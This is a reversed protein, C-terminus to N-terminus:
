SKKQRWKFNPKIRTFNIRIQFIGITRDFQFDLNYGILFKNIYFLLFTFFLVYELISIHQAHGALEDAFQNTTLYSTIRITNRLLIGCWAPEINDFLKNRLASILVVGLGFIVFGQGIM